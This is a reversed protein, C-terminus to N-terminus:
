DYLLYPKRAQRFAEVKGEHAKLLGPGDYIGRRYEDTGLLLDMTPKGELTHNFELKDPYLLRIEDLLCLAGLIPRATQHDVIHMQVGQCMQGQYKSFTPTFYTARFHLGPLNRKGMQKELEVANAPVVTEDDDGQWISIRPWPGDHGSAQRARAAWDAGLRRRAHFMAHMAEGVSSAAGYPVGAMIAGAAFRRPKVALLAAAMGGGASLGTVFVRAPDLGHRELMWGIMTDISALEGGDPAVDAPQFWNFCLRPNNGLQQEPFLVAFGRRRALASWGTGQDYLPANQKCGHLVVVLPSGPRNPGPPTYVLMRLHGPNSGFGEVETVRDLATAASGAAFWSFVWPVGPLATTETAAAARRRRVPRPKPLWM